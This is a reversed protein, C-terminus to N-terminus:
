TGGGTAGPSTRGPEYRSGLPKLITEDYNEEMFWQCKSTEYDDALVIDLVQGSSLQVHRGNDSDNATVDASGLLESRLNSWCGAVVMLLCVAAVCM